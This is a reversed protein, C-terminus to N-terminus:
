AVPNDLSFFKKNDDFSFIEAYRGWNIISKLTAVADEHSLKDELQTKFRLFPAKHDSREHLIKCIYSALPVNALLCRAVIKKRNELNSTTFIKGYKNLKIKDEVIHAFNLIKLTEVIHLIEGVNDTQLIKPLTPLTVEGKYPPAVLAEIVGILETVTALHLKQGIDGINSKNETSITIPPSVDASVMQAYIKDVMARFEASQPDRPRPLTLSLESVIRGPNSSLVLVKDAMAVAEEISHTILVVSKMQTKGSDWLNLFDKKLNNATLIDLASFAEDMLLIQPRLVLARAFGVRQKMGGSLEKPYASEFGDLGIMDISELARKRQEHESLKLSKLGLEVNELVSMWPFLAFSQFIMSIRFVDASKAKAHLIVRGKVPQALGAIIRLLTSKGSGSKGLIAVIENNKLKLNINELIKKKNCDGNTFSQTISVLELLNDGM